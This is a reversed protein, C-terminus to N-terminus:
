KETSFNWVFAKTGEQMGISTEDANVYSNERTKELIRAAVPLLLSASRHFIDCLTSRCIPVGTRTFQKAQRYLPTSDSCKSVAVHAHFGPGYQVGDSVRTPAPATVIHSGCKCAKKRRIHRRRVFRAPIFEYEDSIDGDGFDVFQTGGCNPCLCDEEDVEHEVKEAPLKSKTKANSARKEQSKKKDAAARKSSKRKAKQVERNMPPM